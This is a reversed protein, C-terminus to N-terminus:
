EKGKGKGFGIWGRPREVGGKVAGAAQQGGAVAGGVVAIGAGAAMDGAGGAPETVEGPVYDGNEDKGKREFRNIGERSALDGVPRGLGDQGVQGAALDNVGDQLNNVPEIPTVKTKNLNERTTYSAKNDRTFYRLYLDELWPVWKEYLKNYQGKAWEM